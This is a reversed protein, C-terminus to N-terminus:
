NGEVHSLLVCVPRDVDEFHLSRTLKRKCYYKQLIDPQLCMEYTM